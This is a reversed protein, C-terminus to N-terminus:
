FLDPLYARIAWPSPVLKGLRASESGVLGWVLRFSVALLLLYGGWMHIWTPLLSTEASVLQITFLVLISWHSIRTPLDWIPYPKMEDTTGQLKRPLNRGSRRRTNSM